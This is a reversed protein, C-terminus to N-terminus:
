LRIPKEGEIDGPGTFRGYTKGGDDSVWVQGAIEVAAIRLRRFHKLLRENQPNYPESDILPHDLNKEVVREFAKGYKLPKSEKSLFKKAM